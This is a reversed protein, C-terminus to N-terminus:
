NFLYSLAVNGWIHDRAIDKMEGTRIVIPKYVLSVRNFFSISIGLEGEFILPSIQARSLIHASDKFQGQLLANYLVFRTKFSTYIYWKIKKDGMSPAQAIVNTTSLNTWFAENFVGIKSVVGVHANTYYGMQIGAELASEFIKFNTNNPNNVTSIPSIVSFTYLVTPEGGESIQNEWGQPVPRTSGFWHNDHIYSQVNDAVHWGMFGFYFGTRIAFAQHGTLTPVDTETGGSFDIEDGPLTIDMTENSLEIEENFIVVRESGMATISAYPRDDFIPDTEVLDLPTFGSGLIAMSSTYSSPNNQILKPIGILRDLGKRVLPLLLYNSECVKADTYTLAMGMTYNRDENYPTMFDQDSTFSISKMLLPESGLYNDTNQALLFIPFLSFLIFFTKM